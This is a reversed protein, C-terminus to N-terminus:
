PVSYPGRQGSHGYREAGILGGSAKERQHPLVRLGRGRAGRDKWGHNGLTRHKTVAAWDKTTIGHKGLMEFYQTERREAAKADDFLYLMSVGEIPRQQVGDVSVPEPLGAAQSDHPSISSTISSQGSKAKLKSATTAV